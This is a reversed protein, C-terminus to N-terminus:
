SPHTNPPQSHSINSWTWQGSMHLQCVAPFFPIHLSLELFVIVYRGVKPWALDSCISFISTTGLNSCYTNVGQGIKKSQLHAEAPLRFFSSCVLLIVM